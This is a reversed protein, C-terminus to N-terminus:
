ILIQCFRYVRVQAWFGFQAFFLGKLLDLLADSELNEVEQQVDHVDQYQNVNEGNRAQVGNRDGNDM